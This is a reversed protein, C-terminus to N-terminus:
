HRDWGCEPCGAALDHKLDYGCRPCRGRRRRSARRIRGPAFLIFSWAGAYLVANMAIGGLIPRLPLARFQDSRSTPTGSLALGGVMQETLASGSGNDSTLIQHWLCPRPWGFAADAGRRCEPAPADALALTGWAPREDRTVLPYMTGGTRILEAYETRYESVLEEATPRPPAPTHDLDNELDATVPLANVMPAPAPGNALIGAKNKALDLWWIHLMGFRRAEVASWARGWREFAGTTHRPYMPVPRLVAITWAVAITTMVGLFLLLALRAAIRGM